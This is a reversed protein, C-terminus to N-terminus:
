CEMLRIAQRDRKEFSNQEVAGAQRILVWKWHMGALGFM